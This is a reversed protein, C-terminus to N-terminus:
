QLSQFCFECMIQKKWQQSQVLLHRSAFLSTFQWFDIFTPFYWLNNIM